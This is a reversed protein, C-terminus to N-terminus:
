SLGSRARGGRERLPTEHMIRALRVVAGLVEGAENPAPWVEVALPAGGGEFRTVLRQKEGRLVSRALEAFPPAGDGSAAPTLARAAGNAALLTGEEGLLVLADTTGETASKYVYREAETIALRRELHLARARAEREFAQHDLVMALLRAIGALAQMDREQFAAGGGELPRDMYVAGVTRDGARLPACLCSRLDEGGAPAIAALVLKGKRICPAMVKEPVPVTAGKPDARGRRVEIPLVRDASVDYSFLVIRDPAFMAELRHLAGRALEDLPRPESLYGVLELVAELSVCAVMPDKASRSPPLPVIRSASLEVPADKELGPALEAGTDKPNRLAPGHLKLVVPGVEIKDGHYVSAATVREGNVLTGNTSGLDSIRADEEGLVIECHRRSIGDHVLQIDCGLARGIVSRQFLPFSTGRLHGCLVVLTADIV